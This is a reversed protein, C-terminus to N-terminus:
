FGVQEPKSFFTILMLFHSRPLNHDAWLFSLPELHLTPLPAGRPATIRHRHHATTETLPHADPERHQQEGEHHTQAMGARDGATVRLRRRNGEIQDAVLGRHTQGALQRGVIGGDAPERTRGPDGATRRAVLNGDGDGGAAPAHLRRYRQVVAAAGTVADGAHAPRQRTQRRQVAARPRQFLVALDARHLEVGVVTQAEISLAQDGGAATVACRTGGIAGLHFREHAHGLEAAIQCRGGGVELDLALGALDRVVAVGAGPRRGCAHHGATHAHRQGPHHRAGFVTHAIGHMVGVGTVAVALRQHVRDTVGARQARDAVAEDREVVFVARHAGTGVITGRGIESATQGPLGLTEGRDDGEDVARRHAAIHQAVAAAHATGRSTTQQM